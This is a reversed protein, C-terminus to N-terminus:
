YSHRPPNVGSYKRLDEFKKLIASGSFRGAPARSNQDMDHHAAAFRSLVVIM